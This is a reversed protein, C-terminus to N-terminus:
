AVNVKIKKMVGNNAVVYIICSGSQKATIEGTKSVTAVTTDSSSYRFEQAHILLKKNKEQKVSKANLKQKDGVNLTYSTKAVKIAKVNTYKSDSLVVHYIMSKCIRVKKGDVNKYAVVYFKYSKKNNLNKIAGTLDKTDKILKYNSEGDCVSAYIRYGDAGDAKIWSIKIQGDTTQAGKGTIQAPKQPEAVKTIVYDFPIQTSCGGIALSVIGSIKGETASTPETKEYSIIEYAVNSLSNEKLAQTVVNAIDSKDSEKGAKYDAFAKETVLKAKNLTQWQMSSDNSEKQLKEHIVYGCVTCTEANEETAAGSSTHKEKETQAGCNECEKWHNESDKAYETKYEHAKKEIRVAAESTETTAFKDSFLKGCECVYYETNGEAICTAKKAEVKTLHNAHIHGETWKAYLTTDKVLKMEPTAATTFYRDMYWGDFVYGPKTPMPLEKPLKVQEVADEIKSGGNTDYIIKCRVCENEVVTYPVGRKFAISDESTSYWNFDSYGVDHGSHEPLSKVQSRKSDGVGYEEEGANLIWIQHCTRCIVIMKNEDLIDGKFIKDGVKLDYPNIKRLQKKFTVKISHNEKVDTFTYSSSATVAIGDVKVTDIEYGEMPTITFTQKQGETVKISGSPSISGGGSALATITYDKVPASETLDITYTFTCIDSMIDNRSQRIVRAKIVITKVKGEEGTISIPNTYKTSEITPDSGDTTYYIDELEQAASLTLIKNETYNGSELDAKPNEARTWAFQDINICIKGNEKSWWGATRQGNIYAEGTNQEAFRYGEKPTLYIYLWYAQDYEVKEGVECNIAPFKHWEIEYSEIGEAGETITCTSALPQEPEPVEIEVKVKDIVQEESLNKIWKAYLTVDRYIEEGSSVKGGLFTDSWYWGGFTYGEKIPIPLEKPIAIVDTTPEIASGGNSDYTITVLKGELEIYDDFASNNGWKNVVMYDDDAIWSDCKVEIYSGGAPISYVTLKHNERPVVKTGKRVITNGTFKEVSMTNTSEAYIKTGMIPLLSCLMALVLVYNVLQKLIEKMSLREKM